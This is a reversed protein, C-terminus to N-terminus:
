GHRPGGHGFRHAFHPTALDDAVKKQDPSLGAYLPRFAALYQQEQQDHMQAMQARQTVRDIASMNQNQGRHGRMDQFSKQTSAANDRITQAYRDFAAEQAPTIKLEAKVYAIRAEARATFDFRHHQSQQGQMMPRHQPGPHQAAGQQQDWPAPGLNQGPTAPTSTTPAAPAQAFTPASLATTAGLALLLAAPLVFQKTM